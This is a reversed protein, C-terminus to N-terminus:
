GRVVGVRRQRDVIVAELEVAPRRDRRDDPGRTGILDRRQECDPDVREEPLVAAVARALDSREACAPLVDTVGEQRRRRAGGSRKEGILPVRV